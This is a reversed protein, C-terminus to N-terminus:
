MHTEVFEMHTRLITKFGKCKLQSNRFFGELRERVGQLRQICDEPEPVMNILERFTDEWM